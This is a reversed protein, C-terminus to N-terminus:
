HITVPTFQANVAQWLQAALIRRDGAVVPEPGFKLVAEFGSLQLLRFFHDTFTMDGWWCVSKDAATEDFKTSYSISAYYVPVRKQAAMELMASKFPAVRKGDTSTGEAFLVVGLGKDILQHIEGSAAILNRHQKRNIFVTDTSKSLWGVVPWQSVEQKAVFACQLRSALVIIDVYSLHNAVLLFPTRPSVNTLNIKINLLWVVLLAWTQFHWNRWSLAARPFPILAARGVVLSLSAAGTLLMLLVLRTTGRLLKM